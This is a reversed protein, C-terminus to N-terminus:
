RLIGLAHLWRGAFLRLICLVYDPIVKFYNLKSSGLERNTLVLSIETFSAGKMLLCTVIELQIPFGKEHLVISKLVHAKYAKFGTTNDKLPSLFLIRFFLNAFRSIHVRYSPVNIMRGREIFRSAACVDYNRLEDVLDIVLEPPHTMDADMTVIIDGNAASFGSRLAGGINRNQEHHLVCINGYTRALTDLIEGTRDSSGDDVVVLEWPQSLSIKKELDHIFYEIIEQENYAPVVISVM